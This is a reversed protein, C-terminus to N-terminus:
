PSLILASVAAVVKEPFQRSTMRDLVSRAKNVMGNDVYARVMAEYTSPERIVLSGKRVQDESDAMSDFLREAKHVLGKEGYGRLLLNEIYPSSSKSIRRSMQAYLMEARELQDNTILADLMAQYVAEMGEQNNKSTHMVQDFVKQANKIDKLVTGYAYILTAYHTPQSHIGDDKYMSTLLDQAMDMRHPALMAYAEMLLKYTHVSPHIKYKRLQQFYFLARDRNPQQRVYFQIMNNFPGIRLQGCHEVMDDFFRCAHSESGARVAAAIVAGYTITNPTLGFLQQMEGFLRLVVELKRAKALKSIVVNYFFTTPKVHHRKAEEYITLADTAEDVTNTTKAAGVLLSAYANSDPYQGMRKINDYYRKARVMDGQQAYGILMSNTAMYVGREDGHKDYIAKCTDYLYQALQLQGQKGALAIADRIPEPTPVQGVDMLEDVMCTVNQVSVGRTLARLVQRALDCCASRWTRKASDDSLRALVRTSLDGNVNAIITKSGQQQRHVLAVIWDAFAKDDQLVLLAAECLLHFEKSSLCSPIDQQYSALLPSALARTLGVDSSTLGHVVAVATSWSPAHHTLVDISMDYLRPCAKTLSRASMHNIVHYLADFALSWQQHKCFYYVLQQALVPDPELRAEHMDRQVVVSFARDGDGHKLCLVAYNALNGYAKSVDHQKILAEYIATAQDFDNQHCYASLIPGLTSADTTEMTDVFRKAQDLQGHSCYYRIVANNSPLAVQMHQQILDIALDVEDCKLYADVMAGYVLQCQGNYEHFLTRAAALDGARSLANILAQYTAHHNGHIHQMHRYVFMVADTCDNHHSLARLLVTFTDPDIAEPGHIAVATCFLEFAKGHNNEQELQAMDNELEEIVPKLFGDDDFEAARTAQRKLMALTKHVEADRKCLAQVMTSFTVASAQVNATSMDQYVQLMSSLPSGERRYLVHAELVLHYCKESMMNSQQQQQQELISSYENMIAKLHGQQKAAALREYTSNNEDEDLLQPTNLPSPPPTPLDAPSHHTPSSTAKTLLDESSRRQRRSSSSSSSSSRTHHHSNRRYNSKTANRPM